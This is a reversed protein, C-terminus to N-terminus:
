VGFVGLRDDLQNGLGAGLTDGDNANKVIVM